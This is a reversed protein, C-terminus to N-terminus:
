NHIDNWQIFSYGLVWTFRLSSIWFRYLFHWYTLFISMGVSGEVRTAQDM